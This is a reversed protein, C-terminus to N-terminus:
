NNGPFKSTRSLAANISTELPGPIGAITFGNKHDMFNALAILMWRIYQMNNYNVTQHCLPNRVTNPAQLLCNAQINIWKGYFAQDTCINSHNVQYGLCHDRPKNM